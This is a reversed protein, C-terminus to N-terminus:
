TLTPLVSMFEDVQNGYRPSPLLAGAGFVLLTASVCLLVAKLWDERHPARRFKPWKAAQESILQVEAPLTRGM